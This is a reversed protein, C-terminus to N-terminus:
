NNVFQIGEIYLKDLVSKQVSIWEVEREFTAEPDMMADEIYKILPEYERFRKNGEEYAMVLDNKFDIWKKNM